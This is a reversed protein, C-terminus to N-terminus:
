PQSSRLLRSHELSLERLQVVLCDEAAQPASVLIPILLPIPLLIRERLLTEVLLLREFIRDAPKALTPRLFM